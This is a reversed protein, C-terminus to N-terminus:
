LTMLLIYLTKYRINFIIQSDVVYSIPMNKYFIANCKRNMSAQCEHREEATLRWRM